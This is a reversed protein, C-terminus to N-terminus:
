GAQETLLRQMLENQTSVLDALRDTAAVNRLDSVTMAQRIWIYTEYKAVIERVSVTGENGLVFDTARLKEKDEDPLAACYQSALGARIVAEQRAPHLEPHENGDIVQQRFEMKKTQFLREADIRGLPKKEFEKIAALWEADSDLGMVLEDVDNQIQQERHQGYVFDVNSFVEAPIEANLFWSLHEDYTHLESIPPNMITMKSESELTGSPGRHRFDYEGGKSGPAGEPKRPQTDIM